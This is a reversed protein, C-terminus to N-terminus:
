EGARLILRMGSKISGDKVEFEGFAPICILNIDSKAVFGRALAISKIAQNVAGAGIARLELLADLGVNDYEAKFKNSIVTAFKVTNVDASVYMIFDNNM